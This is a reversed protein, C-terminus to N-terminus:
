QIKDKLYLGLKKDTGIIHNKLWDVLFILTDNLFTGYDEVDFINIGDLKSRLANHQNFHNESDPYNYKKMLEEEYSFHVRAYEDLESLIGSIDLININGVCLVDGLNQIISILKKHQEDISDILVSFSNNWHLM